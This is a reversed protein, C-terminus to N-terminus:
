VSLKIMFHGFKTHDQRSRGIDAYMPSNSVKLAVMLIIGVSLSWLLQGRKEEEGAVVHGIIRFTEQMQRPTLKLASILEVINQTHNHLNILCARKGKKELYLATFHEALKRLEADTPEPLSFSRQIFKRLYEAFNLDQGFLARASSALQDYDVALVFVLGHIDFVHKLTELYSIAYDPHCRDLEDVFVFVKPCDGGFIERLCSKLENLANTRQEYLKIFDPKEQKREKKKAAVLEGAGIPDFGTWKSALDNALGTIFWAADKAAERLRKEGVPAHASVAKLLGTVIALLPEGCYDGEWANLMVTMPVNTDVSRRQSLDANWMTLFHTKGSGFAANLSVVLSGDVFDHDVILFQEFKKCFPELDLKDDAFTIAAPKALPPSSKTEL